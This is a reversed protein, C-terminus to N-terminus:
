PEIWSVGPLQLIIRYREDGDGVVPMHYPSYNTAEWLLRLAEGEDLWLGTVAEAVPVNALSEPWVVDPDPLPATLDV